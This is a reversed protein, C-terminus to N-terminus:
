FKMHCTELAHVFEIKGNSKIGIVYINSNSVHYSVVYLSNPHQDLHKKNKLQHIQFEIRNSKLKKLSKIEGNEKKVIEQIALLEAGNEDIRYRWSKRTITTIFKKFKDSLSLWAEINENIPKGLLFIGSLIALIAPWDAGFGADTEITEFEDSLTSLENKLESIFLPRKSEDHDYTPDFVLFEM